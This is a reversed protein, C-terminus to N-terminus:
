PKKSSSRLDAMAAEMHQRCRRPSSRTRARRRIPSASRPPTSCRAALPPGARARRRLRPRGARSPRDVGSARPDSADARHPAVGRAADREAGLREAVRFETVARRPAVSRSSVRRSDRTDRGLPLDIREGRKVAGGVLALYVRRISHARFQESLDRHAADTKAIVLLGARARTSGTSSGPAHARALGTSGRRRAWTTSSSRELAHGDLQGARPADRARGAQRRRPARRGRPPHRAARAEPEVPPRERVPLHSVIVDGPRILRAAKTAEGNLTILGGDIWRRVSARSVRAGQAALFLDLRRPSQGASVVTVRPIM